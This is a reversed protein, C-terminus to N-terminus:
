QLHELTGASRGMLRPAKAIMVSTISARTLVSRGARSSRSTRCIACEMPPHSERRIPRSATGQWVELATEPPRQFQGLACRRAARDEEVLSRMVVQMYTTTITRGYEPRYTGCEKPSTDSLQRTIHLAAMSTTRPLVSM